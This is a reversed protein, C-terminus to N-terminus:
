DTFEDTERQEHEIRRLEASVAQECLKQKSIGLRMSWLDLKKKLEGGIRFNSDGSHRPRKGQRQNIEIHDLVADRFGKELEEVTKGFFPITDPLGHIEGVFEKAKYDYKIVASFGQYEM